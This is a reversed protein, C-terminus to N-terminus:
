PLYRSKKKLHEEYTRSWHLRGQMDSLYYWYPTRIPTIAARISGLGPNSIPGIPLGARVYTNYPSDFALDARTVEFTNKGIIYPFVADVQLRVGEELRKWLIGAIVQRSEMTRAEEEVLSAMTIVDALPKGFVTMEEQLTGIKRFFNEELSLVVTRPSEGPLFYYTDPFLYGEKGETLALFEATDFSGLRRALIAAMERTTAGEPFTVKVPTREYDGFAVRAAVKFVNQPHAFYYGGAVAGREGKLAVVVAMFLFPSRVAREEKFTGAVAALPQGDEVIIVVPTKFSAPPAFVLAYVVGGLLGALAAALFARNFIRCEICWDRCRAIVSIIRKQRPEM